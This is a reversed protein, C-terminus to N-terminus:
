ETPPIFFLRPASDPMSFIPINRPWRLHPFRAKPFKGTNPCPIADGNELITSALELKRTPTSFGRERYKQYVNEGQLYGKEKFEEWSLGSPELLFDLADEVTDPWDQGM